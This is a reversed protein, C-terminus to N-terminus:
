QSKKGGKGKRLLCFRFMQQLVGDRRFLSFLPPSHLYLTRCATNFWYISIRVFEQALDVAAISEFSKAGFLDNDTKKHIRRVPSINRKNALSIFFQRLGIRQGFTFIDTEKIYETFIAAIQNGIGYVLCIGTRCGFTRPKFFVQQLQVFLNIDQIGQLLSLHKCQERQRSIRTAFPIRRSIIQTHIGPFVRQEYRFDHRPIQSFSKIGQTGTCPLSRSLHKGHHVHILLLLTGCRQQRLLM